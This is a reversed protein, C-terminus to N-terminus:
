VSHTKLDISKLFLWGVRNWRTSIQATQAALHACATHSLQILHRFLERQVNHIGLVRSKTGFRLRVAALPHCSNKLVSLKPIRQQEGEGRAFSSTGGGYWCVHTATSGSDLCSSVVSALRSVTINMVSHRLCDSVCVAIRQPMSAVLWSQENHRSNELASTTTWHLHLNQSYFSMASFSMVVM